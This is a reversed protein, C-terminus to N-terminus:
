QTKIDLAFLISKEIETMKQLPLQILLNVYMIM